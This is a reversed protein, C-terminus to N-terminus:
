DTHYFGLAKSLLQAVAPYDTLTNVSLTLLCAQANRQKYFWELHVKMAVIARAGHRPPFVCVCVCM